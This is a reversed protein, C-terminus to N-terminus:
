PALPTVLINDWVGSKIRYTKMGVTGSSYTSDNADILLVDDIFCKINSGRVEVAMTYWLGAHLVLGGQAAIERVNDFEFPHPIPPDNTKIAGLKVFSDEGRARMVFYYGEVHRTEWNPEDIKGRFWLGAQEGQTIKVKAEYRYNTWNDTGPGLYTYLADDANKGGAERTHKLAATWGWGENPVIFWQEPALKSHKLYPKWYDFNPDHWDEELYIPETIHVTAQGPAKPPAGKDAVTTATASNVYTGIVPPSTVTYVLTLTDERAVTFPGTWIIEGTTGAPDSDIDSPDTVMGGFEFGTPLTDRIDALVGPVTGENYFVVTYTFVAEAVNNFVTQPYATKSVTFRPPSYNRMAIPFFAMGTQGVKVEASEPGIITSDIYGRASNVLTVTDSLPMTVVYRYALEALPGISPPPAQPAAWTLIPGTSGYPNDSVDSDDAMRKFTVGEPLIDVVSNLTKTEDVSSNSFTLTYTVLGGPQVRAPEATKVLSLDDVSALQRAGGAASDLPVEHVVPSGHTLATPGAPGAAESDGPPILAQSAVQSWLLVLALSLLAVTGPVIWRNRM